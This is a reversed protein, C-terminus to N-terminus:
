DDTLLLNLTDATWSRGLSSNYVSTPDDEGLAVLENCRSWADMIMSQEIIDLPEYLDLEEDHYSTSYFQGDNPDQVVIGNTALRYHVHEDGIANPQIDTYTDSFGDVAGRHYLTRIVPNAMILHQMSGPAHQMAGISDLQKFANNDVSARASRISARLKRVSENEFTSTIAEKSVEYIKRAAAGLGSSDFSSWSKEIFDRTSRTMEGFFGQKFDMDDQEVIVM